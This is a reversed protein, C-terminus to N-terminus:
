AVNEDLYIWWEQVGFNVDLVITGNEVLSGITGEAQKTTWGNETLAEMLYSMEFCASTMDGCDLILNNFHKIAKTQNETYNM